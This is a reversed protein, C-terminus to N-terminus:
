PFTWLSNVHKQIVILLFNNELYQTEKDANLFFCIDNQPDLDRVINSAKMTLHRLLTTSNDLTTRIPIGETNVVITGIVYKNAEIRKLTEEVWISM